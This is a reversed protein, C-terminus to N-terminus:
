IIDIEAPLYSTVELGVNQERVQPKNWIKM